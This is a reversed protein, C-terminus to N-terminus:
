QIAARAADAFILTMAVRNMKKTTPGSRVCVWALAVMSFTIVSVAKGATAKWVSLFKLFGADRWVWLWMWGSGHQRGLKALHNLPEEAAMPGRPIRPEGLCLKSLCRIKWMLLLFMLMYLFSVFLKCCCTSLCNVWITWAGFFFFVFTWDFKLFLHLAWREFLYVCVTWFLQCLLAFLAPGFM